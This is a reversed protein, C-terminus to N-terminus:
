KPQNKPVQMGAMRMQSASRSLERDLHHSSLHSHAGALEKGLERDMNSEIAINRLFPHTDNCHLSRHRPSVQHEEIDRGNRANICDKGLFETKKCYTGKQKRGPTESAVIQAAKDYKRRQAKPMQCCNRQCNSEFSRGRQIFTKAYM